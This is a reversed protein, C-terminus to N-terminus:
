NVANLDQGNAEWSCPKLAISKILSAEAEEDTFHTTQPQFTNM